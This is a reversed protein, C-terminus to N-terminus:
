DPIVSWPMLSSYYRDFMSAINHLTDGRKQRDQIIAKQEPTYNILTRRKM